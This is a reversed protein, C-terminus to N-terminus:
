FCRMVVRMSVKQFLTKIQKFFQVQAKSSNYILHQITIMLQLFIHLCFMFIKVEAYKLLFHISNKLTAYGFAFIVEFCGLVGKM